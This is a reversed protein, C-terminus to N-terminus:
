LRGLILYVGQSLIFVLKYFVGKLYVKIHGYTKTGKIPFINM